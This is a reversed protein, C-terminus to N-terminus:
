HGLTNRYVALFAVFPVLLLVALVAARLLREVRERGRRPPVDTPPRLGAASPPQRGQREVIRAQTAAAWARFQEPQGRLQGRFGLMACLFYVELADAGPRSEALKAQAWFAWARENTGYLASELKHEQWRGGWPSAEIFLEDLWCALAYRAGLFTRSLERTLPVGSGPAGGGGLDAPDPAAQDGGYEPWRRAEHAGLLLGRLTAQEFEFDLAAGTQLREQLRLGYRLVPHVVEAVGERM